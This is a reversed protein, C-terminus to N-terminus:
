TASLGAESTRLKPTHVGDKQHHTPRACLTGSRLRMNLDRDAAVANRIFAGPIQSGNDRESITDGLLGVADEDPASRELREPQEVQGPREDRLDRVDELEAVLDDEGLVARM